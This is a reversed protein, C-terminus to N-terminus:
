GLTFNLTPDFIHWCIRFVNELHCHTVRFHYDQSRAYLKSLKNCCDRSHPPLIHFSSEPFMYTCMAQNQTRFRCGGYDLLVYRFVHLEYSSTVKPPLSTLNVQKHRSTVSLCNNSKELNVTIKNRLIKESVTSHKPENM